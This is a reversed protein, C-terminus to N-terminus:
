FILLCIVLDRHVVGVSHIYALGRIIQYLFYKFHDNNLNQDSKLVEHLDTDMFDFVIYIHDFDERAMPMILTELNIINEHKLLKLLHLERLIRKTIIKHELM